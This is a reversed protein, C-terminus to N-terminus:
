FKHGHDFEYWSCGRGASVGVQRWCDLLINGPKLSSEFATKTALAHFLLTAGLSRSAFEHLRVTAKHINILKRAKASDQGTRGTTDHTIGQCRIIRPCFNRNNAKVHSSRARINTAVAGAAILM